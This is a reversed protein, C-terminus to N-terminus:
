EVFEHVRFFASDISIDTEFSEGVNAKLTGELYELDPIYEIINVHGSQYSNGLGYDGESFGIVSIFNVAEFQATNTIGFPYLAAGKFIRISMVVVRSTDFVAAIEIHTETIKDLFVSDTELTDGNIVAFFYSSSDLTTKIAPEVPTMDDDKECSLIILSVLISFLINKM